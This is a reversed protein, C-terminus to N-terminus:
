VESNSDESETKLVESPSYVSFKFGLYANGSKIAKMIGSINKVLETPKLGSARTGLARLCAKEFNKAESREGSQIHTMIIKRGEPHSLIAEIENNDDDEESDNSVEIHEEDSSSVNKKAFEVKKVEGFYMKSGLSLGFDENLIDTKFEYYENEAKTEIKSEMLNSGNSLKIALTSYRALENKINRRNFRIQKLMKVLKSIQTANLKQNEIFHLIDQQQLDYQSLQINLQEKKDKIDSVIENLLEVIKIADLEM